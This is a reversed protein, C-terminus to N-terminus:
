SRKKKKNTSNIIDITAAIGSEQVSDKYNSLQELTREKVIEIPINNVLDVVETHPMDTREPYIDVEEKFKRAKTIQEMYESYCEKTCAMSRWSLTKSCYDCAFYHARGGDEGKNCNINKCIHNPKTKEM